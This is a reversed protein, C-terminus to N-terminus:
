GDTPLRPRYLWLQSMTPALDAALKVLQRFREHQGVTLAGEAADRSLRELRAMENSWQLAWAMQEGDDLSDWEAALGPLDRLAADVSKLARVVRQRQETATVM